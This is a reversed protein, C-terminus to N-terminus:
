FLADRQNLARPKGEAKGLSIESGNTCINESDSERAELKGYCVYYLVKILNVNSFLHKIFNVKSLNLYSLKLIVTKWKKLNLRWMCQMHQQKRPSQHLIYRLFRLWIIERFESKEKKNYAVRMHEFRAQSRRIRVISIKDSREPTEPTTGFFM